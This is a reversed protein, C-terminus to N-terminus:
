GPMAKALFFTITYLTFLVLIGQMLRGLLFKIM